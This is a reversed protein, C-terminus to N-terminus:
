EGNNIRKILIPEAEEFNFHKQLINSYLSSDPFAYYESYDNLSATFTAARDLEKLAMVQERKPRDNDLVLIAELILQIAGLAIIEGEDNEVVAMSLCHKIDPLNFHGHCRQYIEDIKGADESKYKRVKM